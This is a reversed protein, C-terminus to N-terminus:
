PKGPEPKPKPPQIQSAKQAIKAAVLGLGAAPNALTTMVVELIDPAMRGINRLQRVLLTEDAAEGKAAQTEVDKVAAQLDARDSEDTNPRRAIEAYVPQFLQHLNATSSQTIIQDRGVFTGQKISVNGQVISGGAAIGERQDTPKSAAAPKNKRAATNAKKKAARPSM